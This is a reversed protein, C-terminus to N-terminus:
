TMNRHLNTWQKLLGFDLTRNGDATRYTICVTLSKTCTQQASSYLVCSYHSSLLSRISLWRAPKFCPGACTHSRTLTLIFVDGPVRIRYALWIKLNLDIFERYYMCAGSSSYLYSGATRFGHLLISTRTTFYLTLIPPLSTLMEVGIESIMDTDQSSLLNLPSLDFSFWM